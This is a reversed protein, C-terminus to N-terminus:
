NEHEIEEYDMEKRVVEWYDVENHEVRWSCRGRRNMKRGNSKRRNWGRRKM